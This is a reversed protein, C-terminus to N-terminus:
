QRSAMRLVRTAADRVQSAAADVAPVLTLIAVYDDRRLGATAGVVDSGEYHGVSLFAPAGLGKVLRSPTDYSEDFAQRANALDTGPDRVEQVLLRVTDDAVLFTCEEDSKQQKVVDVDGGIAAAVEGQSIAACISEHPAPATTSTGSTPKASPEADVRGDGGGCGSLLLLLLVAALSRM